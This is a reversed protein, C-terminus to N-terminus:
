RDRDPPASEDSKQNRENCGADEDGRLWRIAAPPNSPVDPPPEQGGQRCGQSAEPDGRLWKVVAPLEAPKSEPEAPKSEPGRDEAPAAREGNPMCSPLDDVTKPVPFDESPAALWKTLNVSHVGAGSGILVRDQEVDMLLSQAKRGVRERKLPIGTRYDIAWLEGPLFALAILLNRKPEWVINRSNLPGTLTRVLQLPALQFEYLQNSFFSVTILRNKESLLLFDLGGEPLEATDVVSMTVPDIKALLFRDRTDTMGLEVFLMGTSEDRAVKLLGANFRTLGIEKMDIQRLFEGTERDFEALIPHEHFTVYVRDPSVAFSWPAIRPGALINSIRTRVFPDGSFTLLDGSDWDLTWIEHRAPDQWLYRALGHVGIVHAQATNMDIRVIGSSPGFCTFLHQRDESLVIERMYDLPFDAPEGVSPYIREYGIRQEIPTKTLQIPLLGTYHWFILSGCAGALVARAAWRQFGMATFALALLPPSAFAVLYGVVKHTAPMQAALVTNIEAWAILLSFTVYRRIRNPHILGQILVLFLGIGVVTEDRAISAMLELNPPIKHWELPIWAGSFGKRAPALFLALVVAVPVLAGLIQDWLRERSTFWRYRHQAVFQVVAGVVCGAAACLAPTTALVHDLGLLSLEVAKYILVVFLVADGTLAGVPVLRRVITRRAQPQTM